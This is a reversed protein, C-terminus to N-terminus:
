ERFSTTSRSFLGRQSKFLLFGTRPTEKLRFCAMLRHGCRKLYPWVLPTTGARNIAEGSALKEISKDLRDSVITLQRNAFIASMNHNIRM